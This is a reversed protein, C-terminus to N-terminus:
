AASASANSYAQFNASVGFFNMPAPITASYTTIVQQGSLTATVNSYAPTNQDGVIAGETELQRLTSDAESAAQGAGIPGGTQGVLADIADGVRIEVYDENCVMSLEMNDLNTDQLWTTLSRVVGYYNGTDLQFRKIAMVGSTVLTDYDTKQLTSQLTGELGKASLPQRTLAQTIKLTSLRGALQAAVIYPEYTTLTQTVVDVDQIGPWV